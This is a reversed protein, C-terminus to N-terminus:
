EHVLEDDVKERLLFHKLLDIPVEETVRRDSTVIAYAICVWRVRLASMSM